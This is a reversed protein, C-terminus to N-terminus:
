LVPDFKTSYLMLNHKERHHALEKEKEKKEEALRELIADFRSLEIKLMEPSIKEKDTQELAERREQTIEILTDITSLDTLNDLHHQSEKLARSM